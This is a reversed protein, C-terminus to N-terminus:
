CPFSVEANTPVSTPIFSQNFSCKVALVLQDRTGHAKGENVINVQLCLLIRVVQAIFTSTWHFKHFVTLPATILSEVCIFLM